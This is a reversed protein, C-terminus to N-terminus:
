FIGAVAFTTSFGDGVFSVRFWTGVSFLAFGSPKPFTVDTFTRKGFVRAAADAAATAASLFDTGDFIADDSSLDAVPVRDLLVDGLVLAVPEDSLGDDADSGGVGDDVAADVTPLVDVVFFGVSCVDNVFKTVILDFDFLLSVVVGDVATFFNIGNDVAFTVGGTDATGGVPILSSGNAVM